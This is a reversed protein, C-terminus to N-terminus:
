LHTYICKCTCACMDKRTYSLRGTKNTVTFWTEKVTLSPCLLEATLSQSVNKLRPNLLCSISLYCLSKHVESPHPLISWRTSIPPSLSLTSANWYRIRNMAELHCNPILTKFPAKCIQLVTEAHYINTKSSSSLLPEYIINIRQVWMNPM